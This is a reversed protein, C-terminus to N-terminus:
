EPLIAPRKESTRRRHSEAYAESRFHLLPDGSLEIGPPMRTPDFVYSEVLDPDEHLRDVVLEGAVVLERSEPWLKTLDDVPDDPGALQFVLSWSIPGEALRQKIESILYQPPLVRDDAPDMDVIGAQPIWRFRFARRRGEPDVLYYAHFGNFRATAFSQPPALTAGAKIGAARPLPRPAIFAALRLPNPLGGPLEARQASVMAGFEDATTAPFAALNLATWTTFDGSGLEFRVALGLSNGRKPGARDPLYPSSGGNSMRVVADVRKGQLHEATTLEAVEPTARFHGRFAVGRAHGRKYGPVNNMHQEMAGLVKVVREPGGLDRPAVAM